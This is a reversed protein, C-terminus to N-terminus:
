LQYSLLKMNDYISFIGVSCPVNPSQGKGELNRDATIRTTTHSISHVASAQRRSPPSLPHPRYESWSPFPPQNELSACFLPIVYRDLSSSIELIFGPELGGRLGFVVDDDLENLCGCGCFFGVFWSRVYSMWGDFHDAKGVDQDDSHGGGASSGLLGVAGATTKQATPEQVRAGITYV